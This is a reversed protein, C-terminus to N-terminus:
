KQNKNIFYFHLFGLIVPDYKIGVDKCIINWAEKHTFAKKYPRVSTLADYVDLIVLFRVYSPIELGRLGLPYGSGNFYEHHLYIMNSIVDFYNDSLNYENKCLNFLSKGLKSHTKIIEFEKFTLKNPKDLINIPVCSKGIDHLLSGMLVADEEACFIMNVNVGLKKMYEIIEYMSIAVRLSHEYNVNDLDISKLIKYAITLCRNNLTNVDLM